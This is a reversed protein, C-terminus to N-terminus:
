LAGLRNESLGKFVPKLGEYAQQFLLHQKRYFAQNSPNINVRKTVPNFKSVVHFDEFMGIGVGACVAAGISTAEELYKPLGVTCEYIDALISSWIDSHAAGGILTIESPKNEGCLIDLISKLNFAVGEEVARCMEEKTHSMDLGIFAGRADKDWIPSREGLLYPLFLLGQSGPLVQSVGYDMEQYSADPWISSQLWKLSAGASQMTGIPTYLEPNLHIFNFTRQKSDLVPAASAMSTWASTGIVTYVTGASSAGAGVAACSGDAGGMIVPTGEMLGTEQAARSCVTGVIDTSAHIEPLLDQRLNLTQIIDQSWEKTQIDLLNTGSADSYDTAFKGTMCFVIYDKTQLMKYAKQYISPCNDRLWMLKAASYSASLRNGTLQYGKEFGILDIMQQEQSQARMDAWILSPHLPQGSDDVLLCGMMHASFSVGCVDSASIGSQELVMQSTKCVADWWVSCDQEVRNNGLYNTEYPITCSAKLEGNESYLVAKNGSTGLDHAMVYKM